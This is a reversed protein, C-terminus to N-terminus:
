INRRSTVWRTLACHHTTLCNLATRRKRTRPKRKHTGPTDSGVRATFSSGIDGSKATKETSPQCRTREGHNPTRYTSEPVRSHGRRQVTNKRTGKGRASKSDASEFGQRKSLPLINAVEKPTLLPKIRETTEPRPADTLRPTTRGHTLSASYTEHAAAGESCFGLLSRRRVLRSARHYTILQEAHTDRTKNECCSNKAL